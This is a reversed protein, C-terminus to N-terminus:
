ATDRLVLPLYVHKADNGGLAFLGTENTTCAITDHVADVTSDQVLWVDNGAFDDYYYLALTQEEVDGLNAPDYTLAIRYDQLSVPRGDLYAGELRFYYSSDLLPDIEAGECQPTFTMIAEYPGFLTNLYFTVTVDHLSITWTLPQNTLVTTVPATSSWPCPLVDGNARPARSTARTMAEASGTQEGTWWLLAAIAAGALAIAVIARGTLHKNQAPM